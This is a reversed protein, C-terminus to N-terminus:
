ASLGFRRRILLLLAAGGASVATASAVALASVSLFVTGGGLWGLLLSADTVNDGPTITPHTGLYVGSQGILAAWFAALATLFAALIASLTLFKRPKLRVQFRSEPMFPAPADRATRAATRSEARRRRATTSRFWRKSPYTGQLALTGVSAPRFVDLVPEEATTAALAARVTMEGVIPNDRAEAFFRFTVKDYKATVVATESSVMTCGRPTSATLRIAEPNDVTRIVLVDLEYLNGARLEISPGDSKASPDGKKPSGSQKLKRVRLTKMFVDAHRDGSYRSSLVEGLAASSNNFADPSTWKAGFHSAYDLPAVRLVASFGRPPKDEYTGAPYKGLLDRVASTVSGLRVKKDQGFSISEDPTAASPYLLPDVFDGLSFEVFYYNNEEVGARVVKGRRLPVYLTNQGQPLNRVWAFYAIVDTAQDGMKKWLDAKEADSPEPETKERSASVWDKQYRFRQIAGTPKALLDLCDQVYLPRFDSSFLHLIKASDKTM